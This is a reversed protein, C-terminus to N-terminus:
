NLTPYTKLVLKLMDRGSNIVESRWADSAPYYSKLVAKKVKQEQKENKYGYQFGQNENIMRQISKISGFTKQSDMTGWEFDMYLYQADM